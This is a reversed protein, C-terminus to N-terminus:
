IRWRAEDANGELQNHNNIAYSLALLLFLQAQLVVDENAPEFFSIGVYAPIAAYLFAGTMSAVSSDTYKQRSVRALGSLVAWLYFVLAPVGFALVQNILANHSNAYEINSFIKSLNIVETYGSGFLSVFYDNQIIHLSAQWLQYRTLITGWSSLETTSSITALAYSTLGVTGLLFAAIGIALRLQSPLRPLFTLAIGIGLWAYAGKAYTFALDYSLLVILAVAATVPVIGKWTRKIIITWTLLFAPILFMALGNPHPYLGMALNSATNGEL